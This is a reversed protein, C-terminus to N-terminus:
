RAFFHLGVWVWGTLVAIRGSRTRMIHALLHGLSPIRSGGRMAAVQLGLAVGVLVLYGTITVDHWTM